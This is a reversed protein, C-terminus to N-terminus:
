RRLAVIKVVHLNRLNLANMTTAEVALPSVM